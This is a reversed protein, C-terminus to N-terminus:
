QPKLVMLFYVVVMACFAPYGLWEWYRAYRRYHPPLPKEQAVAEEAMAAM